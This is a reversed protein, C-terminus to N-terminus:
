PMPSDDQTVTQFLHIINMMRVVLDLLISDAACRATIIESDEAAYAGVSEM